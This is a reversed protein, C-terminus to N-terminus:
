EMSFPLTIYANDTIRYCANNIQHSKTEDIMTQRWTADRYHYIVNDSGCQINGSNDSDRREDREVVSQMEEEREIGGESDDKM